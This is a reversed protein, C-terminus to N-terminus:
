CLSWNCSSCRICGEQRIITNEKKCNPCRIIKGYDGDSMYKKLVRSIAKNFSIINGPSKEIAAYIKGIPTGTQLTISILRTSFEEEDREFFSTIDDIVRDKIILTYYNSKVRIIKGVKDRKGLELSGQKFAFVEIPKEEKLGVLVVWPIGKAIVRHIHCPVCKSRKFEKSGEIHKDSSLVSTMTGNRYTTIGKITKTDFANMYVDRFAEFPYDNPLNITKSMSADVHKSFVEMTNIHEEVTLQSTTAAYNANENWDGIASLYKVGYDKIIAEKLLGRSEDIKYTIGNHQTILLREDGERIWKWGEYKGYKNFDINKPIVLSDPINDVVTTRTYIPSFIPELGGSVNNALISTNGTPAIMLLHSNRIGYEEILLLTEKSLNKIFNGKLYKEKNFSPFAGKEKSLLASSQYATNMIYSELKKTLDLAKKSGYRLKLMMLASGYGMVGLGIRRNELLKTKHSELPVNAIENVNDGFRVAQTIARNLKLYDWDNEKIFQTLNISLLLCSGSIPLPIEGCPNTSNIYERYYLNNLRNITDVFLVGPENRNYTAHMLLDWLENADKYRKYVKVKYGKSIWKEINGDWERNYVERQNEYDPFILEWPGHNKVAKMFKDTILVSMNCKTLKNKQQKITIFEEIDPHFCSLSFLQAGKRIKKKSGKKKSYKGSGATIVISQTDWMELMKVAGPSENGISHIYAGRPRLVDINAGYGGESQLIRAQRNLTDLISIMSDQNEGIFGDVFCNLLTTGKLKTGANSLIRGGPVVKFDEMMNVFESEWYKKDEEVSAVEKAVRHITDDINKDDGFKYTQEYVEKSFDNNFETM